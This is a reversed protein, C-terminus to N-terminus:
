LDAERRWIPVQFGAAELAEFDRRITRESVNLGRALVPLPLAYRRHLCYYLLSALRHVIAGRSMEGM